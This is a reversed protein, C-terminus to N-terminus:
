IMLYAQTGDAFGNETTLWGYTDKDIDSAANYDLQANDSISCYRASLGSTQAQTLATIRSTRGPVLGQFKMVQCRVQAPAGSASQLQPIDIIFFSGPFLLPAADMAIDFVLQYSPLERASLLARARALVTSFQGASLYSDFRTLTQAHRGAMSHEADTNVEVVVGSYNGANDDGLLNFKGYWQWVESLQQHKSETIKLTNELMMSENIFPQEDFGMSLVSAILSIRNNHADWFLTIGCQECIDNLVTHLGTPDSIVATINVTQLWQDKEIDWLDPVGTPPIQIADYPIFEREVEGVVILLSAIADVVNTEDFWYVRPMLIGAEHLGQDTGAQARTVGDLTDGGTIGTYSIIEDDVRVAAPLNFNYYDFYVPDFQFNAAGGGVNNVLQSSTPVPVQTKEDSIFHLMDRCKLTVAGNSGLDIKDLLYHTEDTYSPAGTADYHGWQITVPRDAHWAFRSLFKGWFTGQDNAPDPRTARYKDDDPLHDAYPFDQCQISVAGAIALGLTEKLQTPTAKPLATITPLTNVPAAYSDTAILEYVRPIETINPRDVCTTYTNYCERGPNAPATCPAVGYTNSCGQFHLTVSYALDGDVRSM